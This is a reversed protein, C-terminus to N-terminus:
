MIAVEFTDSIHRYKSFELVHMPYSSLLSEPLNPRSHLKGIKSTKKKNRKIVIFSLWNILLELLTVYKTANFTIVNWTLWSYLTVQVISWHGRNALETWSYPHWLPYSWCSWHRLQIKCFLVRRCFRRCAATNPTKDPKSAGSPTISLKGVQM